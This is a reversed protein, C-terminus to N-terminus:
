RRPTNREDESKQQSISVAFVHQKKSETLSPLIRRVVFTCKKGGSFSRIVFSFIAEEKNSDHTIISIYSPTFIGVVTKKKHRQM